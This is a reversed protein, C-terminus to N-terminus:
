PSIRNCISQMIYTFSYARSYQGAIIRTM